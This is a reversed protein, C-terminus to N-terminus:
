SPEEEEDEWWNYLSEDGDIIESGDTIEIGAEEVAERIFNVTDAWDREVWKVLDAPPNSSEVMTVHFRIAAEVAAGMTSLWDDVDTRLGAMIDLIGVRTAGATLAAQLCRATRWGETPLVWFPPPTWKQLNEFREAANENGGLVEGM